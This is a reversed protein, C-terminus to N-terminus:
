KRRFEFYVPKKNKIHFYIFFKDKNQYIKFIQLKKALKLLYYNKFDSFVPLFTENPTSLRMLSNEKKSIYYTIYPYPINYLSNKTRMKIISFNKNKNIIQIKSSNMIDYYLLKTVIEERQSKEVIRKLTQKSTKITSIVQSISLIIISLITISVLVEILTFSKKM